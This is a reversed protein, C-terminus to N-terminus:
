AREPTPLGRKRRDEGAGRLSHLPVEVIRGLAAVAEVVRQAQFRRVFARLEPEAEYGMARAYAWGGLGVLAGMPGPPRFASLALRGLFLLPHYGLMRCAAGRWFAEALKRGLPKSRNPRLHFCEAGPVIRARWGKLMARFATYTDEALVAPMRGGWSADLWCAMRFVRNGGRLDRAPENATQGTALGLKPDSEFAELLREFYGSALVIDADIKALYDFAGLDVTALAYNFAEAIPVGHAHGKRSARPRKLVRLGKHRDAYSQALEYTGDISGDDVVVISPRSQSQALLADLCKALYPGEDRACVVM